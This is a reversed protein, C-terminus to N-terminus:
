KLKWWGVEMEGAVAVTRAEVMLHWWFPLGRLSGLDWSATVM